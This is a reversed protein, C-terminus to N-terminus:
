AASPSRENTRGNGDTPFEGALEAATVTACNPTEYIAENGSELAQLYARVRVAHVAAVIADRVAPTRDCVGGSAPRPVTSDVRGGLNTAALPWTVVAFDLASAVLSGNLRLPDAPVVIGDTDQLGEPM